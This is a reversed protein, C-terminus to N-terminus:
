YKHDGSAGRITMEDRSGMTKAQTKATPRRNPQPRALKHHDQKQRHPPPYSKIPTRSGRPYSGDNKPQQQINCPLPLLTTPYFCLASLFLFFPFSISLIAICKLLAIYIQTAPATSMAIFTLAAAQSIKSHDRYYCMAGSWRWCRMDIRKSIRRPPPLSPVRGM